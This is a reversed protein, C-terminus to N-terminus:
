GISRSRASSASGIARSSARPRRRISARLMRHLREPAARARRDARAAGAAGRRPRARSLLRADARPLLPRHRRRPDAAPRARHHRPDGGRGRARLARGLIGGTPDAVDVLHHPIGGREAVPVKDTGIDFGRYVATSDCSVIEGDLRQALAIGLASKGVATPGLVAVLPPRPTVARRARPRVGARGAGRAGHALRAASRPCSRDRALRAHRSVCAAPRRRRGAAADRQLLVDGHLVGQRGPYEPPLSMRRPRRSSAREPRLPQLRRDAVAAAGAVDTIRGDKHVYFTVVVQGRMSMAAYPIFWNRRIQAVFRRLWPGFEVGKTDFQISPAVEQQEGGASQQVRRAARVEPRQPDRRRDRGSGPQQPQSQKPQSPPM